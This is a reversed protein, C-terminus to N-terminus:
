DKCLSAKSQEDLELCIAHDLASILGSLTQSPCEPERGRDPLYQYLRALPEECNRVMQLLEIRERATQVYTYKEACARLWDSWGEDMSFSELFVGLEGLITTVPM